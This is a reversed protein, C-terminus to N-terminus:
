DIETENEEETHGAFDSVVADDGFVARRIAAMQMIDAGSNRQRKELLDYYLKMARCDGGAALETLKEWIENGPFANEFDTREDGKPINTRKQSVM